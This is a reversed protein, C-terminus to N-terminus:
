AVALAGTPGRPRTRGAADPDRHRPVGTRGAHERLVRRTVPRDPVAARRGLLVGATLAAILLVGVGAGVLLGAPGPETLVSVLQWFAEFWTVGGM